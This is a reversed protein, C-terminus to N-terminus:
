PLIIIAPTYYLFLTANKLTSKPNVSKVECWDFQDIPENKLPNFKNLEQTRVFLIDRTPKSNNGIFFGMEVQVIEDKGEYDLRVAMRGDGKIESIDTKGKVKIEIRHKTEM